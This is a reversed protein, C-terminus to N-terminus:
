ATMTVSVSLGGGAETITFTYTGTTKVMMNDMSGGGYQINTGAGTLKNQWVSSTTGYKVFKCNDGASLAITLTYTTGNKEAKIGYHVKMSDNWKNWTVDTGTINGALYVNGAVADEGKVTVEDPDIARSGYLEWGSATKKLYLDFTGGKSVTVNGGSFALGTSAADLKSVVVPQGKSVFNLVEDAAFETDTLMYEKEVGAMPTSNEKMSKGNVTMATSPEPEPEPTPDIVAGGGETQWQAYLYLDEGLSAPMKEVTEVIGDKAYTWGVFTTKARTTEAAPLDEGAAVTAFYANSVFYEGEQAETLKTAGSSVTNETSGFGQQYGPSLIVKYQSDASTMASHTGGAVGNDKIEAACGTCFGCFATAMCLATAISAIKKM